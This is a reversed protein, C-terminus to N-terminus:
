KEVALTVTLGSAIYIDSLIILALELHSPPFTKNPSSCSQQAPWEKDEVGLTMPTRSHTFRRLSETQALCWCAAM